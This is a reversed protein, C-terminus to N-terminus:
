AGDGIPILKVEGNGLVLDLRFDTKLQLAAGAFVMEDTIQYGSLRSEFKTRDDDSLSKLIQACISTCQGDMIKVQDKFKEHMESPVTGLLHLRIM